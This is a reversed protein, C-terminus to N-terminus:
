SAPAARSGPEDPRELIRVIRPRERPIDSEKCARQPIEHLHVDEALHCRLIELAKHEHEADCTRVWLLLGGHNLHQHAQIPTALEIMEADGLLEAWLTRAM